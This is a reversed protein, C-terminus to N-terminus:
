PTVDLSGIVVPDDNCERTGSDCTQGTSAVALEGNNNWGWGVLSGDSRLAYSTYYDTAAM